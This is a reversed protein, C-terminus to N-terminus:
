GFFDFFDFFDFFEFFDFSGFPSVPFRRRDSGRCQVVQSRVTWQRQDRLARAPYDGLKGSSSHLESVNIRILEGSWSYDGVRLRDIEAGKERILECQEAVSSDILASVGERTFVPTKVFMTNITLAAIKKPSAM